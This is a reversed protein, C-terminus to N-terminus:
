WRYPVAVARRHNYSPWCGRKKFSVSVVFPRDSCRCHFYAREAPRVLHDSSGQVAQGRRFHDLDDQLDQVANENGPQAAPCNINEVRKLPDLKSLIRRLSRDLFVIYICDM